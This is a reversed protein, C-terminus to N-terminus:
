RGIGFGYGHEIERENKQEKEPRKEPALSQQKRSLEQAEQAKAQADMRRDLDALQADFSAEFALRQDLAALQRDLQQEIPPSPSPSPARAQEQTNGHAVEPQAERKGTGFFSEMREAVDRAMTTVREKVEAALERAREILKDLISVEADRRQEIRAVEAQAQRELTQAAGAGDLQLAPLEERQRRQKAIEQHREMAEPGDGRLTKQERLAALDERGQEAWSRPDLRQEHGHREMAANMMEVWRERVQEPKNRDNWAPDKKAGNRKFFRDEALDRTAETM